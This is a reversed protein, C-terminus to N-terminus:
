LPVPRPPLHIRSQSQLPWSFGWKRFLHCKLLSRSSNLSTVLLTYSKTCLSQTLSYELVVLGRHSPRILFATSVFPFLGPCSHPGSRLPAQQGRYTVPHQESCSPFGSSPKSCPTVSVSHQTSLTRGATTQHSQLLSISHSCSIWKCAPVTNLSYLPAQM